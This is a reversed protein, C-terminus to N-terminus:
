WVRFISLFNDTTVAGYVFVIVFLAVLAYVIPNAQREVWAAVKPPVLSRGFQALAEM